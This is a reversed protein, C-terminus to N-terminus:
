ARTAEPDPVPSPDFARDPYYLKTDFESGLDRCAEDDMRSRVTDLLDAMALAKRDTPKTVGYRNAIEIGITQLRSRIEALERGVARHEAKTFPRRKM